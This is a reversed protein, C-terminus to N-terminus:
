YKILCLHDAAPPLALMLTDSKVDKLMYWDFDRHERKAHFM